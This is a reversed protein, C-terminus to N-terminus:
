PYIGSVLVMFGTVGSITIALSILSETKQNRDKLIQMYSFLAAAVAMLVGGVIILAMNM